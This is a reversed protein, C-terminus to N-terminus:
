NNSKANKGNYTIDKHNILIHAAEIESISHNEAYDKIIQKDSMLIYTNSGNGM